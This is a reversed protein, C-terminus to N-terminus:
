FSFTMGTYFFHRTENFNPGIGAGPRFMGYRATVALDSTLRWNCYIDWEWGLWGSGRNATTDSIPGNSKDRHYFFVNTGVEMKKFISHVKELPFLRVGATYIHINSVFPAFAIGTDRFGFSNFARDSTGPANGGVTSSSSMMRDGDGSGYIYEFRVRPSTPVRLLYEL